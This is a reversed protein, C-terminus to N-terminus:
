SCLFMYLIIKQNDIYTIEGINTPNTLLTDVVTGMEMAKTAVRDKKLLTEPSNSLGALTSYNIAQYARYDKYDIIQTAM